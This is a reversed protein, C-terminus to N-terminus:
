RWVIAQSLGLKVDAGVPLGYGATDLVIHLGTVEYGHV